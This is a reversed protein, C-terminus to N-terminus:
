AAVWVRRIGFATDQNQYYGEGDHEAIVWTAESYEPNDSGEGRAVINKATQYDM